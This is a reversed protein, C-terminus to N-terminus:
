ATRRRGIGLVGLLASGLLWLAPPLPVATVGTEFNDFAVGINDRKGGTFIFQLRAVQGVDYGGGAFSFKWEKADLDTTGNNTGYIASSQSALVNGLKDVARVTWGETLTGSTGDIDWIEGSIAGTAPRVYEIEFIPSTFAFGAPNSCGAVGPTPCLLGNPGRLFFSGLSSTGSNSTDFGGKADNVFAEPDGDTPFTNTGGLDEAYVNNAGVFRIGQAAVFKNSGTLLENDVVSGDDFNLLAASAVGPLAACAGLGMAM